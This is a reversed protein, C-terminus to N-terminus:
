QEDELSDILGKLQILLKGFSRRFMWKSALYGLPVLVLIVVPLLYVFRGRELLQDLTLGTRALGGCLYGGTAAFPYVFIGLKIQIRGWASIEDHHLKLEELLPRTSNRTTTQIARYLTWAGWVVYITFASTITLTLLVQWYPFIIMIMVYGILILLSWIINRRLGRTLKILPHGPQLKQISGPKLLQNLDDDEPKWDQWKAQENM